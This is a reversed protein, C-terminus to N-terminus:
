GVTEIARIIIECAEMIEEELIILPPAIRLCNDAFLFWDTLVGKKIVEDIIKKNLDFDQFVATMLLGKSRVELIKPYMLLEHFLAEKKGVESIYPQSELVDLMALSAACSVANGGFTTIHGLIPNHTLSQMIEKSSIFAGLPLGAGLGKALTVIDPVVDFHEFGFWKGTRGLGTQVEDLILLAGVETCRDRLAKLWGDQPVIVGAEGQISEAIVAATQTTIQSLDDWNNYRLTRIGPILPRFARRFSEDGMLSLVGQTSGHYANEFGVIEPRGTYRKALKIAGENAESGSNVFYVSELPDPLLKALREALKVQPSQILEGYVMVHSYRAAQDQIAKVVAPHAHGLNSVSIGSILDMWREGNPGYLYIGEARVVELMLPSDTTQAQHRLFLQRQSLM